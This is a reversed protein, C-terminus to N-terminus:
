GSPAQRRKVGRYVFAGIWWLLINGILTFPSWLLARMMPIGSSQYYKPVFSKSEAVYWGTEVITAGRWHWVVKLYQKGNPLESVEFRDDDYRYGRAVQGNLENAKGAPVLFSYDKLGSTYEELDFHPVIKAYRSEGDPSIVLVPFDSPIEQGVPTRPEPSDYHVAIWTIVAWSMVFLLILPIDRLTLPRSLM